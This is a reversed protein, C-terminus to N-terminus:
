RIKKGAAEFAALTKAQIEPTHAFSMFGVEFGSPAVYVGEAILAHFLKAFSEKQGPPLDGLSRIPKERREHFWFLSRFESVQLNWDTRDFLAQLDNAFKKSSAHLADLGGQAEVRELSALGATMGVPNASLTGAQYVPGAPAVWDMLEARGGYCAVNFGGGLVKGYACLDPTIGTVEAMGGKAVRFGSIVEDFVLLAGHKTAIERLFKLFETRQPLLGYNAPIPEILIAAIDNGHAKFIREVDEERDLEAVLTERAAEPSVGASDSSAEGAMGSGSKVLMGDAHGHYCGNFKLVYKRGTAARAVRILSMVAETGSAVFRLKEIHPVWTKIKEALALSYPECTGFSWATRIMEEVKAQVHPDRHGLILPGFSMCYDIYKQGEVSELYAGQGAKFFLPEGGVSRFARVPSHVGGPAVKQSRAFLEKSNM